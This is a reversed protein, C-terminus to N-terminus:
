MSLVSVLPKNISAQIPHENLQADKEKKNVKYLWGM